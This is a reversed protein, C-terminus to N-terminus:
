PYVIFSSAYDKIVKATVMCVIFDNEKVGAAELTTDDALVKGTSILKM